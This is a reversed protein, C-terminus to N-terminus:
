SYFKKTKWSLFSFSEHETQFFKKFGQLIEFGDSVRYFFIFIVITQILKNSNFNQTTERIKIKFQVHFNWSEIKFFLFLKIGLFFAKNVSEIKWFTKPLVATKYMKLQVPLASKKILCHSNMM